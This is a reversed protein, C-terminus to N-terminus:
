AYGPSKASRSGPRRSDTVRRMQGGWTAVEDANQVFSRSSTNRVSM